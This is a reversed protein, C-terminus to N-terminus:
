VSCKLFCTKCFLSCQSFAKQSNSDGFVANHVEESIQEVDTTADDNEAEESIVEEVDETVSSDESPAVDSEEPLETEEGEPHQVLEEVQEDVENMEQKNELNQNEM